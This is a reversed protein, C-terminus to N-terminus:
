VAELRVFPKEPYRVNIADGPKVVGGKVVVSMVGPKYLITGDENKGICAQMIGDEFKNLLHCPKRLGTVRVMAEPGLELLTGEPLNLLDIGRTTINEGMQGPEVRLGKSRLENHLEEHILHVQRLNPADPTRKADYLHKVKQGAHADGEVGYGEILKIEEQPFKKVSHTASLNVSLVKSM